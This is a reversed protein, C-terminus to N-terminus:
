CRTTARGATCSRVPTAHALQKRTVAGAAYISGVMWFWAVVTLMGGRRHVPLYETFLTFVSPVSGGVGLGAMVRFVVLWGWSPAFASSLGFAANLALSYLLCPRRGLKDGLFGCVVGGVLMGVFVAASLVAKENDGVGPLQPIIYRRM